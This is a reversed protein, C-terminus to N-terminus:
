DCSCSVPALGDRRSEALPNEGASSDKTLTRPRCRVRSFLPSDCRPDECVPPDGVRQRAPVVKRSEQVVAADLEIGIRNLTRNAGNCEPALIMRKALESIPPSRHAVSQESM